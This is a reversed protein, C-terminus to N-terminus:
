TKALLNTGRIDEKSGLGPGAYGSTPGVFDIKPTIDPTSDSNDEIAATKQARISLLTYEGGKKILESGAIITPADRLLCGRSITQGGSILMSLALEYYYKQEKFESSVVYSQSQILMNQADLALLDSYRQAGALDYNSAANGALEMDSNLVGTNQGANGIWAIDTLTPVSTASVCSAMLLMCVLVVLEKIM